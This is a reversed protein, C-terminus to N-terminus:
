IHKMHWVSNKKAVKKKQKLWSLSLARILCPLHSDYWDSRRSAGGEKGNDQPLSSFAWCSQKFRTASSRSKSTACLWDRRCKNCYRDSCYIIIMQYICKVSYPVHPPSGTADDRM